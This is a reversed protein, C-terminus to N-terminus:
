IFFCVFSIAKKSGLLASDLDFLKPLMDWKCEASMVPEQDLISKCM